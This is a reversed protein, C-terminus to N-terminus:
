QCRTAEDAWDVLGDAVAADEMLSTVPLTRLQEFYAEAAREHAARVAAIAQDLHESRKYVARALDEVESPPEISELASIVDGYTVTEVPRALTYGGDRGPAAHVLGADVMHRLVKKLYSDSVGLVQALTSSRVPTRGKQLALMLVVFAAQGTSQNIKM